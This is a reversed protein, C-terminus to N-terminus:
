KTLSKMFYSLSNLTRQVQGVFNQTGNGQEQSADPGGGLAQQVIYDLYEGACMLVNVCSWMSVLVCAYELYEGACM